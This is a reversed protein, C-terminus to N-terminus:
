SGHTTPPARAEYGPLGPVQQAIYWRFQYYINLVGTIQLNSIFTTLNGEKDWENLKNILLAVRSAHNSPIQAPLATKVGSSSEM